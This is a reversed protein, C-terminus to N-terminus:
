DAGAELLLECLDARGLLAAEILPTRGGEGSENVDKASKLAQKLAAADQSQVAEFLTMAESIVVAAPGKAVRGATEGQFLHLARAGLLASWSKPSAAM